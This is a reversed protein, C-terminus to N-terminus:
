FQAEKELASELLAKIVAACSAKTWEFRVVKVDSCELDLLEAPSAENVPTLTQIPVAVCYPASQLAATRAMIKRTTELSAPDSREFIVILGAAGEAGNGCDACIESIILSSKQSSVLAASALPFGCAAGIFKKALVPSAALVGILPPSEISPRAGEEADLALIMQRCAKASLKSSGAASETVLIEDRELMGSLTVLLQRETLAKAKAKLSAFGCPADLAIFVADSFLAKGTIKASPNRQLTVFPNSVLRSMREAEARQRISEALLGKIAAKTDSDDAPPRPPAKYLSASGADWFLAELAAEEGSLAGCEAEALRAGEFSLLASGSPSEVLVVGGKGNSDVFQLIGNLAQSSLEASMIPAGERQLATSLKKLCAKRVSDLLSSLSVPKRLLKFASGKLANQASESIHSAYLQVVPILGHGEPRSNLAKFCCDEGSPIRENFEMGSVVVDPLGWSESPSGDDPAAGEIFCKVDFGNKALYARWLGALPANSEIILVKGRM